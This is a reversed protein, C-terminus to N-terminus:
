KIWIDLKDRNEIIKETKDERNHMSFNYIPKEICKHQCLNEIHEILLDTDFALPHDYNTKVREDYTLNSQDKYYADQELILINEDPLSKFIAKAVTSKGSGTGGSVGIVVPKSM